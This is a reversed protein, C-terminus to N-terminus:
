RRLPPLQMVNGDEWIFAQSSGDEFFSNGIIQRRDNIDVVGSEDEPLGDIHAVQGQRLLFNVSTGDQADFFGLIDGRDNNAIARSRPTTPDADPRPEDADRRAM